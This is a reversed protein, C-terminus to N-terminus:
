DNPCPNAPLVSPNITWKSRRRGTLRTVLGLRTMDRTCESCLHLSLGDSRRYVAVIAVLNCVSKRPDVQDRQCPTTTKRKGPM